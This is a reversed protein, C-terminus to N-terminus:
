RSAALTSGTVSSRGSLSSTLRTTSSIRPPASSSPQGDAFPRVADLASDVPSATCHASSCRCTRPARAPRGEALELRWAMGAAGAALLLAGGRGRRAERRCRPWARAGAARRDALAPRRRLVGLGVSLWWVIDYGGTAAFVAGGLWVGVFAGVQHSLFVIGFLTGMHQTGFMVAVLGSTLPVTSLWLLGM